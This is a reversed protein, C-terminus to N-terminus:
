NDRMFQWVNEVPNLEPSRPPLALVTINDPIALKPTLHWGAQDVILVAHAGPDVAASIEILHAAMADTDCWPMVLGAGKGKAPCIAGFIYAWETRQDRPARPRTGRRAWRRTLKNKQGIRAEDQWWLEIEVGKPLRARIKALEAPFNKKFAEVALENQAYHRPRASIKAFGLAKLERGVTTEDLSIAFTELLWRALDKRRWRVVGDVAPVPGAEVVEALARRHDANLKSPAGPSKGDVLGDPGRANFRLVWDRIIQLGVGGIRSADTRSGGDYVEALALLRRSQTADRTRKALRRLSVSDFDNRLDIPAAMAFRMPEGCQTLSRVAQSDGVHTLCEARHYLGDVRVVPATPQGAHDGVVHPRRVPRAPMGQHPKGDRRPRLLSRRLPRPRRDKGQGPQDGRFASQCRRAPARGQGCGAAAPELLDRDPLRFGQVASGGQRHNPVVASGGLAEPALVAKLRANPALGFLYAVGEAECWAMLEERCFGSDGRLVIRVKPWRARIRAVIRAVEDVAGAAGDINAPRLKAGLLFRGCFIYLPLYCYSDYYGHFFRGEQEGHITDDTADLDLVIEKPARKHGDLFIDVFLAELSPADYDIKHYKGAERRPRHELRNLTSKGAVPACDSRKAELKGALVHFLPDHRLEDHDNLDEYGLALAFVRQGVLTEVTHELLRPDRRDTFCVAMRRILGLGRDLRGLLLGGADSTIIGGDFGAVVKHREVPEFEFLTPSCETQM